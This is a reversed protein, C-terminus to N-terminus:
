ATDAEGGETEATESLLESDVVDEQPEEEQKEINNERLWKDAAQLLATIMIVSLASFEAPFLVGATAATLLGAVAVSAASKLFRIIAGKNKYSLSAFREIKELHGFITVM